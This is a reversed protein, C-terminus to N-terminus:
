GSEQERSGPLLLIFPKENWALTGQIEFLIVKKIHGRTDPTSCSPGAPNWFTRSVPLRLIHRNFPCKWQFGPYFHAWSLYASDLHPRWNLKFLKYLHFNSTFKIKGNNRPNWEMSISSLAALSTSGKCSRCWCYFWKPVRTFSRVHTEARM